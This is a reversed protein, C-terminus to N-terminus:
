KKVEQYIPLVCPFLKCAGREAALPCLHILFPFLPFALCSNTAIILCRWVCGPIHQCGFGSAVNRGEERAAWCFLLSISSGSDCSCVVIHVCPPVEGNERPHKGKVVEVKEQLKPSGYFWCGCTPIKLPFLPEKYVANQENGKTKEM